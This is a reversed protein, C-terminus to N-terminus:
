VAKDHLLINDKIKDRSVNLEVPQSKELVSQQDGILSESLNLERTVLLLDQDVTEEGHVVKM